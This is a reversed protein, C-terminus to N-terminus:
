NQVIIEKIFFGTLYFLLDPFLLSYNEVEDKGINIRFHNFYVPLIM